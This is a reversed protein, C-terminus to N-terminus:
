SLIAKCVRRRADRLATEIEPLDGLGMVTFILRDMETEMALLITTRASEQSQTKVEISPAKESTTVNPKRGRKKGTYPAEEQASAESKRTERLNGTLGLLARTKDVLTRSITGEIRSSDM